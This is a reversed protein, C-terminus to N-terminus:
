PESPWYLMLPVTGQNRLSSRNKFFVGDTERGDPNKRGEESGVLFASASCM